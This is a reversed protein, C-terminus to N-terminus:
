QTTNRISRSSHELRNDDGVIESSEIHLLQINGSRSEDKNSSMNKFKKVDEDSKLYKQYDLIERVNPNM